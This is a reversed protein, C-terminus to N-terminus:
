DEVEILNDIRDAGVVLRVVEQARQKLYYSSVRGSLVLANRHEEYVCTVSKLEAYGSRSLRAQAVQELGLPSEGMDGEGGRLRALNGILPLNPPPLRAPSRM